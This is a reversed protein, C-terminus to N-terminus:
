KKAELIKIKEKQLEMIISLDHAFNSINKVTEELREIKKQMEDMENMLSMIDLDNDKINRSLEKYFHVIRWDLPEQEQTGETKKECKM